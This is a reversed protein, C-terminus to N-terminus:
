PQSMHESICCKLCSPTIMLWQTCNDQRKATCGSPLAVRKATAGVTDSYTGLKCKVGPTHSSTEGQEYPWAQCLALCPMEYESDGYNNVHSKYENSKTILGNYCLLASLPKYPDDVWTWGQGPRISLGGPWGYCNGYYKM